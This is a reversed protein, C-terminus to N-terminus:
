NEVVQIHRKPGEGKVLKMQHGVLKLGRGQNKLPNSITLAYILIIHM